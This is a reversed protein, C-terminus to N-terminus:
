RERDTSAEQCGEIGKVYLFVRRNGDSNAPIGAIPDNEGVAFVTTRAEPVGAKTLLAAVAKARRYSLLLNYRESGRSDTHGEVALRAQPHDRLWARLKELSVQSYDAIVPSASNREFLVTIAPPCDRHQALLQSSAPETPEDTDNSPAGSPSVFTTTPGGLPTPPPESLALQEKEADAVKPTESPSAIPEMPPSAAPRTTLVATQGQITEGRAQQEQLPPQGTLWLWAAAIALLAGILTFGMGLWTPTDEGALRYQDPTDRQDRESM